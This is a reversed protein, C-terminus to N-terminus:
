EPSDLNGRRQLALGDVRFGGPKKWFYAASVTVTIRLVSRGQLNVSRSSGPSLDGNLNTIEREGLESIYATVSEIRVKNGVGVIKLTKLSSLDYRPNFYYVREGFREAMGTGITYPVETVPPNKPPAPPTPAREPPPPVPNSDGPDDPLPLPLDPASFSQLSFVLGFILVLVKM